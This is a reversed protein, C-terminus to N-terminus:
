TAFGGRAPLFDFLGPHGLDSLILQLVTIANRRVLSEEQSGKGSAFM